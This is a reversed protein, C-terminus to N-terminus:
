AERLATLPDLRSARRAPVYCAFAAVLLLLAAVAIMTAPDGPEVGFLLGELWRSLAYAGALGILTGLAATGVGHSVFLGLVRSRDAGLAMRLGIERTRETVNHAVVGYLGVAALVIAVFAFVGLIMASLRQRAVAERMLQSMPVVRTVPLDKEIANVAEQLPRAISAPDGATRVVFAVSRSPAHALPVFAQMPTDQDVGNLKVDGVVGVVERWPSDSEPTEPWGQKLYKGIPNEGPWLRRALTENVILVPTSKVRERADFTRGARVPIGMAEFYGGSVPVFAASPLDARAPVPKDRVVFVSGWNSGEIPLSLTLAAATVGPLARVRDLATGHFAIRKDTNTWAEGALIVRATMLNDPRFGTNVGGLALMTRAMLGCGALLILALATEAIMLVRRTRRPATAGSMRAATALLRGSRGGSAQFAPFAGFLLGCAISAAVAFLLSMQNLRVDEIRPIGDPAVAVFTQLLWWAVAVGLLGGLCSLLTSEALLQAVIRARSGGLASRIALEHQRAAGRAVLLNAVNVCALLLLFGVAGMLAVLTDRVPAVFRDRLLVVQGGSRANTNPYAQRLDAAIRQIEENARALTVGEALRAIANLGFHNGRDLWGSQETIGPGIPAYIDEPRFFRFGPPLVGVITFTRESTRLTRGIVAPDGGLDAKWFRDSVIAVPPAGLVDDAATFTRGAQMAVGLVEFFPACVYRGQLRRPQGDGVVSFSNGQHCAISEFSKARDRVDKYNPWAFSMPDEGDTENAFVLRGPEAFPLPRLLIGEVVSFIATAAGIGLALTALVVLAFSPRKALSRLTYKLDLILSDMRTRTREGTGPGTEAGLAAPTDHQGRLRRPACRLVVSGAQLLFRSRSRTDHLEELLDGVIADAADAPATRRVLWAALRIVPGHRTM